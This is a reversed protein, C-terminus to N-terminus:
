MLRNAASTVTAINRIASKLRGNDIRQPAARLSGTPCARRRSGRMSSRWGFSSAFNGSVRKHRKRHLIERAVTPGRASDFLPFPHQETCGNELRRSDIRKMRMAAALM